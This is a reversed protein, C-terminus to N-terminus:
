VYMEPEKRERFNESLREAAQRIRPDEMSRAGVSCTKVCACCKICVAEDTTVADQVTIAATPCVSACRECRACLAEQVVSSVGSLGAWEKYPSNGPVQLPSMGDLSRTNKMRERIMRGFENATRMDEADPRGAAIPTADTSYSHEGIFAGAAVPRFGAELVLDRLELLADEFARNGYVVVIVAPTGNGKLRRLRSVAEVPLRGGYVPAGIIALGDHLEAQKQVTTGPRTLDVHEIEAFLLGHAITEIIKRTTQTPSFYILRASNIDM